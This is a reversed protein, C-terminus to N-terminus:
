GGRQALSEVIGRWDRSAAPPAPRETTRVHDTLKDVIRVLAEVEEDTIGDIIHRVQVAERHKMERAM